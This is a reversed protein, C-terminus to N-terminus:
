NIWWEGIDALPAWPRLNEEKVGKLRSSTIVANDPIFLGVIPCEELIIEEIKAYAASVVAPDSHLSTQTIYGDIRVDSFFSYNLEGTTGFVPGCDQWVGLEIEVSAIMYEKNNLRELYEEDSLELLDVKVGIKELGDVAERMVTLMRFNRKPCIATVVLEEGAMFWGDDTSTYGIDKLLIRARDTNYSYDSEQQKRYVTGSYLPLLAIQGHESAARDVANERSTVLNLAQRLRKDYFPNRLAIYNKEGTEEDVDSGLLYTPTCNIAIYDYGTGGYYYVSTGRGLLSAGVTGGQLVCIDFDSSLKEHETEFVSIDVTNYYTLKSKDRYLTNKELLIHKDGFETAKFIGTADLVKANDSVLTKWGIFPICLKNIFLADPEKLIVQVTYKDKVSCGAVNAVNIGYNGGFGVLNDILNKVDAAEAAAGSHFTVNRAMTLEWVTYTEDFTWSTLIHPLIQMDSGIDVLPECVLSCLYLRLDENSTRLPNITDYPGISLKLTGGYKPQSPAPTASPNASAGTPASTDDPIEGSGGSCGCLVLMVLAILAAAIRKVNHM